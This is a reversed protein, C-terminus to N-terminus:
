RWLLFLFALVGALTITFWAGVPVKTLASSLYAGDLCAITLWPLFVIFPSVRWVFMAALATMCTDFFTVFMVCVGYANGLSTTQLCANADSSFRCPWSAAYM